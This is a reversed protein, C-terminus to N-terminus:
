GFLRKIFEALDHFLCGCNNPDCGPGEIFKGEKDHCQEYMKPNGIVGDAHIPLASISVFTLLVLTAVLKRM